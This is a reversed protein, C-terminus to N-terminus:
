AAQEQQLHHHRFDVVVGPVTTPSSSNNKVMVAESIVIEAPIDKAFTLMAGSGTKVRTCNCNNLGTETLFQFDEHVTKIKQNNTSQTEQRSNVFLDANINTVGYKLAYGAAGAVSVIKRFFRKM